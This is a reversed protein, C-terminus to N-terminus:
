ERSSEGALGKDDKKLLEPLKNQVFRMHTVTIHCWVWLPAALAIVGSLLIVARVLLPEPLPALRAIVLLSILLMLFYCVCFIVMRITAQKLQGERGKEGEFLDDTRIRKLTEWIARNKLLSQLAIALFILLLNIAVAAHPWWSWKVQSGREVSWYIAIGMGAPLGLVALGRSTRIRSRLSDMWDVRGNKDGRLSYELLDQPFPDGLRQNPLAGYRATNEKLYKHAVGLRLRDEIPSLITDAVKDFVVGFLYAIGLVGILAESRLLRENLNLGSLLPLLFACLALIGTLVHEIAVEATKM